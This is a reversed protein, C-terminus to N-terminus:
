RLWSLPEESPQEEQAAPLAASQGGRMSQLTRLMELQILENVPLQQLRPEAPAPLTETSVRRAPQQRFASRRWLAWLVACVILLLIVLIVLALTMITVLNGWANVQAVKATEIQAQAMQATAYSDMGASVGFIILVILLIVVLWGM